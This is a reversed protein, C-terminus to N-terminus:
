FCFPGTHITSLFFSGHYQICTHMEIFHGATHLFHLHYFVFLIIRFLDVIKKPNGWCDQVTGCCVLLLYVCKFCCHKRNQRRQFLSQIFIQQQFPFFLVSIKMKVYVACQHSCHFLPEIDVFYAFLAAPHLNIFDSFPFVHLFQPQIM